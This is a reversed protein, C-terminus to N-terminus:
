TNETSHASRTTGDSLLPVKLAAIEKSRRVFPIVRGEGDRARTKQLIENELSMVRVSSRGYSVEKTREEEYGRGELGPWPARLIHVLDRDYSLLYGVDVCQGPPADRESIAMLVKYILGDRSRPELM